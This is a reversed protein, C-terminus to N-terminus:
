VTRKSMFYLTPFIPSLGRETDEGQLQRYQFNGRAQLFHNYDCSQMAFLGVRLIM